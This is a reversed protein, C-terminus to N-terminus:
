EKTIIIICDKKLHRLISYMDAKPIAIGDVNKDSANKGNCQLLLTTGSMSKTDSTSHIILSYAFEEPFDSVRKSKGM